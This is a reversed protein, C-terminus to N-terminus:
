FRVPFFNKPSSIALDSYFKWMGHCCLQWAMYLIKYCNSSQFKSLFVSIEMFDKFFITISIIGPVDVVASMVHVGSCGSCTKVCQPQSLIAATKCVVKEFANEQIFIYSIRNFIWELNTELPVFLVGDNTWIIAQWRTPALGNDSGIITLNGICIHM